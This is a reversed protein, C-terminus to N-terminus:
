RNIKKRGHNYNELIKRLAWGLLGPSLRKLRWFFRADWSPLVHLTGAEVAKLCATSVSEATCRAYDFFVQASQRFNENDVRASSLIGTEFFTPCAVSVTVGHAHAEIALTESLAIVGAKTVNYSVLHPPNLLGASSAINLIAGSRQAQMMPLFYHCGYIVGWLNIEMIWTWDDLSQSGFEGAVAVGANNVLLDLGGWDKSVHEKLAAFEEKSRVNHTLAHAESAGATLCQRASEEAAALNIDTLLLRVGRKALQLALARGLGGGAGTILARTQQSLKM